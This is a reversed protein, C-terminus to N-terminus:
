PWPTDLSLENARAPATRGVEVAMLGGRGERRDSVAYAPLGGAAGELPAAYNIGFAGAVLGEDVAEATMDQQARGAVVVGPAM